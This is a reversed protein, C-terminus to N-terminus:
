TVHGRVVLNACWRGTVVLNINRVEAWGGGGGREEGRGGAVM